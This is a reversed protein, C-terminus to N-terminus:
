CPWRRRTRPRRRGPASPCGRCPPGPRRRPRWPGPRISAPCISSSGFVAQISSSMHEPQLVQMGSHGYLAILRSSSRFIATMSWASHLPQPVHTAAQGEPAALLMQEAVFLDVVLQFPQHAIDSGCRMGGAVLRELRPDHGEHAVPAAVRRGVQGARRPDLVRRVHADDAHHAAPPDIRGEHELGEGQPGVAHHDGAAM